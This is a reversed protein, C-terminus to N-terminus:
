APSIAARPDAALFPALDALSNRSLVVAERAVEVLTPRGLIDLLIQVRQRTPMTRLVRASMGAFAGEAMIIEDGPALQNEVTISDDEAFCERLEQIIRDEIIPIRDGFQVLKSVGTTHRIDNMKEEVICRVFVYGPFLPEVVRVLGRRTIKEIRLRPFFVELGLHKRLNATAIHEHKPKIRACYWASFLPQMTMNM